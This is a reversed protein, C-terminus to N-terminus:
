EENLLKKQLENLTENIIFREIQKKELNRVFQFMCSVLEKIKKDM